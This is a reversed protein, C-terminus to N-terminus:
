NKGGVVSYGKGKVVLYISAMNHSHPKTSAKPVLYQFGAMMTPTLGRSRGTSSSYLM